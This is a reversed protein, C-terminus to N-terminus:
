TRRAEYEKFVALREKPSLIGCFPSSQRLRRPQEESSTVPISTIDLSFREFCRNEGPQVRVSDFRTAPFTSNCLGARKSLKDEDQSWGFM